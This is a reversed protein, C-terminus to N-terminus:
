EIRKDIAIDVAALDDYDDRRQHIGNHQLVYYILRAYQKMLVESNFRNIYM